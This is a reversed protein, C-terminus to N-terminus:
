SDVSRLDFAVLQQNEMVCHYNSQLYTTFESYHDFWWFASCTFVIFSVGSRRMQEVGQIASEDDIPDGRHLGDQELFPLARRGAVSEHMEINGDILIFNHGPPIVEAINQAVIHQQETWTLDLSPILLRTLESRQGNLSLLSEILWARYGTDKARESKLLYIAADIREATTALQKIGEIAAFEKEKGQEPHLRIKALQKRTFVMDFRSTLRIYLNLDLLQKAHIARFPGVAALASSRMMVAASHPVWSPGAVLYHLFDFGDVVGEPMEGPEQLHLHHGEVDIYRVLGAFFAASQFKELEAVSGRIFGPMMVDDDPLITLYPSRSMELARNWNGFLGINIENRMYTVRSDDFSRVITETDDSSANDLVMVHFDSYEQALVSELCDKLLKSRNYTPIQITVKTEPIMKVKFNNQSRKKFNVKVTKDEIPSFWRIKELYYRWKAKAPHKCNLHWPKNPGIFHWIYPNQILNGEMSRIEEKFESEIWREYSLISSAVNWRPDLMGWKGALVANLGEQDRFNLYDIFGRLYNFAKRSIKETRWRELNMVLVGANFYPSEPLLGLEKYKVVGGPSSVCPILFDRVALLAHGDMKEQWLQELDKEVLIDCDLFIAKDFREPMIDPVFLSFYTATTVHGATKLDNLLAMDPTIWELHLDIYDGKIVRCLRKKNSESIGGDIIFLYLSCGAQLHILVSHLAVGLSMAYNNDSGFVLVLPEHQIEGTSKDM